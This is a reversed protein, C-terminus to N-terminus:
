YIIASRTKEALERVEPNSSVLGLQIFHSLQNPCLLFNLEFLRRYEWEDSLDLYKEAAQLMHIELWRAPVNLLATVAWSIVGVNQAKCAHELLLGLAQDALQPDITAISSLSTSLGPVLADIRSNLELIFTNEADNM